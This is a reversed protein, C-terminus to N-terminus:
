ATEKTWTKVLLVTCANTRHGVRSVPEAWTMSRLKMITIIEKGTGTAARALAYTKPREDATITPEFVVPPISTKTTFTTNTLYLDRSRASLEDLPTRGVM